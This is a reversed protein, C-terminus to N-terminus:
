NAGSEEALRERLRGLARDKLQRVRERSISFQRGVKELSQPEDSHLGFYLSLIEAEREPLESLGESLLSHLRNKEIHEDPGPASDPFIDAHSVGGEDYVPTDLSLTSQSSEMARRLRRQSMDTKEALESIDPARGLTHSLTRSAKKIAEYDDIQNTPIAVPRTQRNLASLIAQRIWWVGYTIFKFGRDPDFTQTARILGVNGEAILDSLPLGRGSYEGAIRVVFRLNATILQNLARRDGQRAAALVSGEQDRSLPTYKRIDRMYLETVVGRSGVELTANKMAKGAECDAAQIPERGM